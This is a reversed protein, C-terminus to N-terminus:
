TRLEQGVEKRLQWMARGAQIGDVAELTEMEGRACVM